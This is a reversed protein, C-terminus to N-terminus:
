TGAGISVVVPIGRHGLHSSAGPIDPRSLGAPGNKFAALVADHRDGLQVIGRSPVGALAIPIIGIHQDRSFLAEVLLLLLSMKRKPTDYGGRQHETVIRANHGFGLFADHQVPLANDNVLIGALLSPADPLVAM